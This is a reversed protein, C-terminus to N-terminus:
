FDSYHTINYLDIARPISVSKEVNKFKGNRYDQQMKKLFNFYEIPSTGFGFHKRVKTDWMVFFHPSIIHMVKTAGVYKVGQFESLEKYIKVIRGKIENDELDVKEFKKDKFYDFDCSNLFKEFKRLGFSRTHYRFYAFNWTALLLFVGQLKKGESVLELAWYYVKDRLEETM